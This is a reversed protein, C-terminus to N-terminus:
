WYESEGRNLTNPLATSGPTSADSWHSIIHWKWGLSKTALTLGELVHRKKRHYHCNTNSIITAGDDQPGWDSARQGYMEMIEVESSPLLAMFLTPYPFPRLEWSEAPTSHLNILSIRSPIVMRPSFSCSARHFFFRCILIWLVLNNM